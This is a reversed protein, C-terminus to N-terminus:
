TRAGAATKKAILYHKHVTNYTVDHIRPHSYGIADFVKKLANSTGVDEVEIEKEILAMVQRARSLNIRDGEVALDGGVLCRLPRMWANECVKKGFTWTAYLQSASVNAPFRYGEPVMHESGDSWSYSIWMGDDYDDRAEAAGSMSEGGSHAVPGAAHFAAKVVEFIDQKTVYDSVGNVTVKRCIEEATIAPLAEIKKELEDFRADTRVELAHVQQEIKHIKEVGSVVLNGDRWLGTRVNSHHKDVFGTTFIPQGFLPFNDPFHKLLWEKHFIISAGLMTLLLQMGSPLDDWGEIIERMEEEPVRQVFHPPLTCWDKGEIPLGSTARGCISDGGGGQFLYAQQTSSFKWGARMFVNTGKPGDCLSVVHTAAGKRNSHTDIENEEEIGLRAKGAKDAAHLVKHLNDSHMKEVCEGEFVKPSIPVFKKVQRRGRKVGIDGGDGKEAEELEQERQRRAMVIWGRCFYELKSFIFVALSLVACIEPNIPNAYVRKDKAEEVEGATDGKHGPVHVNLCDGVWSLHEMFINAATNARQIMNWTLLHFLWSTLLSCWSGTLHSGASPQFDQIFREAIYIYGDFRNYTKGTKTSIEGGRQGSTVANRWGKSLDQLEQQLVLPVEMRKKRYLYAIASQHGAYTSHTCIEQVGDTGRNRGLWGFFAKLPKFKEETDHPCKMRMGPPQVMDLEAGFGNSSMWTEMTILKRLYRDHTGDAIRQGSIHASTALYAGVSADQQLQSPTQQAGAHSAVEQEQQQQQQQPPPQQQATPRRRPPM